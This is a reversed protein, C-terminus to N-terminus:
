FKGQKLLKAFDKKLSKLHRPECELNIVCVVKDEPRVCVACLIGHEKGGEALKGEISFMAAARKGFRVLKPKSLKPEVFAARLQTAKELVYTETTLPAERDEEDTWAWCYVDARKAGFWLRFRLNQYGKTDEGRGKAQEQLKKLDVFQWGDHPRELAMAPQECRQESGELYPADADDGLSVGLTVLLLTLLWFRATSM